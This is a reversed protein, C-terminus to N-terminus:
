LLRALLRDPRRSYEGLPTEGRTLSLLTGTLMENIPTRIGFERGARVVAGHLYEVESRGRGSRLDVHFSPMKQGRGAGAARSLFPKSLWTPLGIVLALLRVPTGPLDVVPISQARMVMLCERLMGIELRYLRPNAMIEAPTMDLIASTPNAILNTLLKSWKMAAADGFLRANLFARDAADVLRRGAPSATAVGIGRLRELIIDGPGRRGIATTLTAAIVKERGLVSALATENDVGNSLCCVPPLDAAFPRIADMAAATDFSKLAFIAVDFPGQKVAEQVSTVVSFSGPTLVSPLNTHRRRDLTLDLRLGRRRLEEAASPQELFVLDEGALALSGGVYTGVAGAGFALVRLKTM